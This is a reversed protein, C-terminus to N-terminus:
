GISIGYKKRITGDRAEKPNTSGMLERNELVAGNKELIM